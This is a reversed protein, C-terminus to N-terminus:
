ELLYIKFLSNINFKYNIDKINNNKLIKINAFKSLLYM